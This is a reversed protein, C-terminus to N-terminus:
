LFHSSPLNQFHNTSCTDHLTKFHVRGPSIAAAYALSRLAKQNQCISDKLVVLFGPLLFFTTREEVVFDLYEARVWNKWATRPNFAPHIDMPLLGIVWGSTVATILWTLVLLLMAAVVSTKIAKNM